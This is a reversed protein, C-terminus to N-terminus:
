ISVIKLNKIKKFDRVNRTVLSSNTIISSAAVVADALSLKHTKRIDAAREAVFYDLNVIVTQSIFQQFKIVAERSILPYSLFEVIVISPIYLIDNKHTEFFEVAKPDDAAYYILINTDITFM